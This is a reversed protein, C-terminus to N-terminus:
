KSIAPISELSSCGHFMYSIDKVKKTNLNSIDSLLELSCCYNLMYSMYFLNNANWHSIDSISILSEYGDFIHSLNSSFLFNM